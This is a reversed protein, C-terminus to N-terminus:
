FTELEQRLKELFGETQKPDMINTTKRDREKVEVNGQNRDSLVIRIPIGRLDAEMFKQGPKMQRADILTSLGFRSCTEALTEAMEEMEKKKSLNLITLNWPAICRPLIIGYKNHNFAAILGILTFLQLKFIETRISEPKGTKNLFEVDTVYNQLHGITVGWKKELPNECRPCPHGEEALAIDEIKDATFDRQYNSNIYHYGEKNAGAVLNSAKVVSPDAIVICNSREIGIPSAYGPQANIATIEEDSAERISEIQLANKLKHENVDLDGRIVAFIVKPSGNVMGHYFVAKATKQKPVGVFAAVEEITKCNPTEIEELPLHEQDMEEIHLMASETLSAYGCKCKLISQRGNNMPVFYVKNKGNEVQLCEIGLEQFTDIFAIGADQLFHIELLPQVKPYILGLPRYGEDVHQSISHFRRPLNRYTTFESQLFERYSTGFQVRQGAQARSTFLTVIRELIKRGGEYVIVQDGSMLFHGSRLLLQQSLKKVDKPPDRLVRGILNEVNM